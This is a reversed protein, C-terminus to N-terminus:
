SLEELKIVRVGSPNVYLKLQEDLNVEGRQDEVLDEWKYGRIVTPNSNLRELCRDASTHKRKAAVKIAESSKTLIERLGFSVPFDNGLSSRYFYMVVFSPCENTFESVPKVFVMSKGNQESREAVMLGFVGLEDQNVQILKKNKLIKAYDDHLKDLDNSMFLPASWVSWLAMQTLAQDRSLAFNGIVLQDPDFWSGPGHYQLITDQMKITFDLVSMVSQWSDFIDDFYRWLNCSKRAVEFNPKTETYRLLYFPWECTVLIPRETKKLAETMAPCIQEAQVFDINCGDFKFSDVGWAAFTQADVDFYNGDLSSNSALQGPYHACTEVGCDGYIGLKLKKRHLEDALEKIGNEGFRESDPELRGEVRSKSSWCDDINVYEYGVERFGKSILSDAIRTYLQKSICDNQNGPSCDIDCTFREWSIWGMPPTKALGNELSNSPRSLALISLAVIPSLLIPGLKM